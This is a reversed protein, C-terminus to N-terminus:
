PHIDRFCKSILRIRLWDFEPEFGQERLWKEQLKYAEWEPEQICAWDRSRFQVEHFLEHLLGSVDMADSIRWPSVLFIRHAKLDYAAKLHEDVIVDEGEYEIIDGTACFSVDPPDNLSHSVDYDSNRGIWAILERIMTDTVISESPPQDSLVGQLAGVVPLSDGFCEGIMQADSPEEAVSLQLFGLGFVAVAAHLLGYCPRSM